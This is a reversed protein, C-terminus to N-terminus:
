SSHKVSPMDIRRMVRDAASVCSSLARLRSNPFRLLKEGIGARHRFAEYIVGGPGNFIVEHRGDRYLKIGLYLDPTRGFTLEDQFTAKVSVRRGTSTTGDHTAAGIADLAIDYEAAAVIEGIDGVLRGDITFQRLPFEAHLLGIGEFILSLGREIRDEAM